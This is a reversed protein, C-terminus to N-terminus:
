SDVRVIGAASPGNLDPASAHARRMAEPWVPSIMIFRSATCSPPTGNLYKPSQVSRTALPSSGLFLGGRGAPTSRLTTTVEHSHPM